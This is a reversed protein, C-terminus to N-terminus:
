VEEGILVDTEPQTDSVLLMSDVEVKRVIREGTTDKIKIGRTWRGHQVLVWQGPKVDAQQPGVAYVKGWRPHIGHVKGDDSKLILGSKTIQEGFNMDEVIVDKNLPKLSSIEIPTINVGKHKPLDLV